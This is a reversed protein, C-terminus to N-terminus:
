QAQDTDSGPPWALTRRLVVADDQRRLDKLIREYSALTDALRLLLTRDLREACLPEVTVLAGGSDELVACLAALDYIAGFRNPSIALLVGRHSLSRVRRLAALLGPRELPPGAHRELEECVVAVVQADHQAADERARAEQAEMDVVVEGKAVCCYLVCRDHSERPRDERRPRPM